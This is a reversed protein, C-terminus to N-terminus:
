GEADMGRCEHVRGLFLVAFRTGDSNCFLYPAMGKVAAAFAHTTLSNHRFHSSACRNCLDTASECQEIKLHNRACGAMFYPQRRRVTGDKCCPGAMGSM